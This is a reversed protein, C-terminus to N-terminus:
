RGPMVMREFAAIRSPHVFVFNLFKYTPDGEIKQVPVPGADTIWFYRYGLLDFFEHLKAETLGRLVECFITPLYKAITARAGAFVEPESGETDVKMLDVDM